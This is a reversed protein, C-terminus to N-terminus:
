LKKATTIVYEREIQEGTNSTVFEKETQESVIKLGSSVLLNRVWAESYLNFGYKAFPIKQMIRKPIFGISFQAGPKMVRIIEYLYAPADEWFYITNVTFVKDFINKEFPISKGNSLSFSVNSNNAFQTSAEAVMIESIDIGKYKIGPAIAAIEHVHRGNGPGIELISDNPSIGLTAITNSIIGSNTANMIEGAKIGANGEPCRLNAALQKLETETLKM